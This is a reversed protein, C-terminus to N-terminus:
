KQLSKELCQAAEMLAGGANIKREYAVSPMLGREDNAEKILTASRTKMQGIMSQVIASVITQIISQFDFAKDGDKAAVVSETTVQAVTEDVKVFKGDKNRTAM